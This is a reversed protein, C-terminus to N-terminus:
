NVDFNVTGSLMVNETDLLYSASLGIKWGNYEFGLGVNPGFDLQSVGGDTETPFLDSCGVVAAGAGLWYGPAAQEILKGDNTSLIYDALAGYIFGGEEPDTGLFFNVLYKDTQVEGNVTVFWQDSNMGVSNDGNFYILGAGFTPKMPLDELASYQALAPRAAFLACACLIMPLVRKM